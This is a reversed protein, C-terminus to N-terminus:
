AVQIDFEPQFVAPLKEAFGSFNQDLFIVSLMGFSAFSIKRYKEIFCCIILFSISNYFNIKNFITFIPYKAFKRALPM